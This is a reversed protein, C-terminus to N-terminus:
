RAARCRVEHSGAPDPVSRRYKVAYPPGKSPKNRYVFRILRSFRHTAFRVVANENVALQAPQIEIVSHKRKGLVLIHRQSLLQLKRRDVAAIQVLKEHHTHTRQVILQKEFVLVALILVALQRALQVVNHFLRRRQLLHAVVDRRPQIGIQFFLAILLDVEVIEALVRFPEPFFVKDILNERNQRRLHDVPAMREGEQAILLDIQPARQAALVIGRHRIAYHGDAGLKLAEDQDPVARHLRESQHLLEDQMEGMM